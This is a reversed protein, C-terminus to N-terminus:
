AAVGDVEPRRVAYLYWLLWAPATWVYFAGTLPLQAILGVMGGLCVLGFLLLAILSHQAKYLGVLLPPFLLAQDTFWSYPTCAMSVILVLAGDTSWDWQARRRLFYWAAWLCGAAEFIFEIWTARRDIAFRLAMGVTPVFMDVVKQTHLMEHYQQWIQRDFSYTAACSAAVALAFGAMVAFQRRAISWLALVLFFPLFLQPKMAFLVLSAGALWPRTKVLLTFLVVEILFFIGLQGAVLCWLAPPFGLAIVHYRSEPRGHLLWLLWVSVALCVLLLMLWGILGSKASLWGLPLFFIWAVPPSFNIIPENKDLGASRQLRLIADSDYPNAGHALQQELAWYQIFDRGTANAKDAGAVLIGVVLCAGAAIICAALFM